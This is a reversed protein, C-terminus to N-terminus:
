AGHFGCDRSSIQGLVVSRFRGFGVSVRCLIFWVVCVVCWVGCGCVDCMVCMEEGGSGEGDVGVGWGWGREGRGVVVVCEVCRWADFRQQIPPQRPVVLVCDCVGEEGVMGVWWMGVLWMGVWM